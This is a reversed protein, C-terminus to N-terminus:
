REVNYTEGQLKLRWSNLLDELSQALSIQPQWGTLNFIKSADGRQIAIEAERYRTKDVEVAIPAYAKATLTALCESVAYAKMSCVNYVEGVEGEEMLLTYARVIDRVDTYDRQPEVNGIHITLKGKKEGEAIQRALDSCLLSPSLNPGIINFNRVRIIPLKYTLHYQIATMEQTVKSVAYHTLPRLDSTESIPQRSAEGYVASSSAILIRPTIGVARVANLLRITGIVNTEYNVLGENVDRDIAGALHYIQTPRIEHIASYLSSGDLIDGVYISQKDIVANTQRETEPRRFGYVMDGRTLLYQALHGGVCGTIGTIFVRQEQDRPM